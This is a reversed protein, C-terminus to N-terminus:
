KRYLRWMKVTSFMLHSSNLPTALQFYHPNPAILPSMYQLFKMAHDFKVITHLTSLGFKTLETHGGNKNRWSQRHQKHLRQKKTRSCAELNDTELKKISIALSTFDYLDDIKGRETSEQVHWQCFAFIFPM